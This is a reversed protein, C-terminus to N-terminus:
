AIHEEIWEMIYKLVADGELDHLLEHRGESYKRFTKDTSAIGAVLKESGKWDTYTDATGHLVLTLVTWNELKTRVMEMTNLATAALLFPIQRKRILRDDQFLRLADIDRTLGKLSSTPRPISVAPMAAAAVGLVSRAITSLPDPLAPGTMIVGNTPQSSAVTSGATVLGGLSHGFLIISRREVSALGRLEVHDQVAKGIHAVGPTGPSRGHGWMDLGYVAYGAATLHKIFKNHSYVYREACEGFGHQLVIVARPPSTKSRWIHAVAGTSLKITKHALDQQSLDPM